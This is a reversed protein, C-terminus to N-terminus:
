NLEKKDKEELKSVLQDMRKNDYIPLIDKVKVWNINALNDFYYDKNLYLVDLFAREVSAKFYTGDTEIGIKNTLIDDKIKRFSYKQGEIQLERTLYSAIFIEGYFQFIVGAKALVTEFSVYSPTFIRTSLEEKDYDKDKAYVGKRVPYIKGTKMYRYLKNRVFAIKTENWILAVDKTTFITNKARILDLLNNKKM